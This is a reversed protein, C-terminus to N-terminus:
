SRRSSRATPQPRDTRGDHAPARRTKLRAIIQAVSQWRLPEIYSAAAMEPDTMITALNSNALVV